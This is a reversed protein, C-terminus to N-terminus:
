RIQGLANDVLTEIGQVAQQYQFGTSGLSEDHEFTVTADEGQLYQSIRRNERAKVNTRGKLSPELLQRLQEVYIVHLRDRAELNAGATVTACPYLLSVDTRVLAPTDHIPRAHGRRTKPASVWGKLSEVEHSLVALESIIM